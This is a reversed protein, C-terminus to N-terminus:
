VNAPRRAVWGYTHYAWEVRDPHLDIVGFGEPTGHWEGRWWKGSVAGGTIFTTDHWRLMENVHLHGQLVLLLKHRSFAELVEVNNVVGRNAPVAAEVGATAQYFSTLLPMHTMLIIPTSPDTHSIDDRLWAMQVDDVFGRYKMKDKTVQVTDLLVFHYGRADFSRYTETMRMKERVDSRPDDAPPTGDEPEVGVLDHNGLIFIPEPSIAEHMERYVEWRPSVAAASSQYGDTIMDGGCLVLDPHHQNIAAAALQMAEPTDWEVRAHIDTYFVVKLSEAPGPSEVAWSLRNPWGLLVAGGIAGERLFRRRSVGASVNSNM